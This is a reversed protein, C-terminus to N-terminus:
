QNLLARKMLGLDFIDIIDNKDMDAADNNKLTAGPVALLWKQLAVIDLVTFVGDDNVDGIVEEPPDTPPVYSSDFIYTADTLFNSSSDNIQM